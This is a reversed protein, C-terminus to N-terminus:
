ITRSLKIFSRIEIGDFPCSDYFLCQLCMQHGCGLSVFLVNVSTLCSPCDLSAPYQSQQQDVFLQFWACSNNPHFGNPAQSFCHFCHLIQQVTPQSATHQQFNFLGKESLFQADATPATFTALRNGKSHYQTCVSKTRIGILGKTMSSVIQNM